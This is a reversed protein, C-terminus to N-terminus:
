EELKINIIKLINNYAREEGIGDAQLYPWSSDTYKDKNERYSKSNKKEKEIIGKLLEFAPIASALKEKIEKRQVETRTGSLWKVSTKM